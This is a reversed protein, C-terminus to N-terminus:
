RAAEIRERLHGRDPEMELAEEWLRVAAATDGSAAKAEGLHELHVPRLVGQQRATEVAQSLWRVADDLEGRQFFVWGLTDLFSPNDDEIDVARRAMPLADDLREARTALDFAYNNLATANDAFRELAADHAGDAAASDGLRMHLLAITGLIVSAEADEGPMDEDLITLAQEARRLADRNRGADLLAFTAMRLLPYQGPFLLLADEAADAAAPANGSELFAAVLQEWAGPHAPDHDLGDRLAEAAGAFDGLRFRLDGLLLLGQPPLAGESLLSELSRRAADAAAPDAGSRQYQAAARALRNEPSDTTVTNALLAAASADDGRQRYLDALATAAEYEDPFREVLDELTLIAEDTRDLAIYLEALQFQISPNEPHLQALAAIATAAGELDGVRRYLQAMRSRVTASEGVLDLLREYTDLADRPRDAQQQVRALIAVAEADRPALAELQELADIAGAPDGSHLRLDAVQRYLTPEEPSARLAAEAHFLAAGLDGRAEHADALAALAAPDNPRLDLVTEFLRAATEHDGVYAATMGRIFAQTARADATADQAGAPRPAMLLGTLSIALLSLARAFM